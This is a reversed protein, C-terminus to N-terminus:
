GFNYGLGSLHDILISNYKETHQSRYIHILYTHTQTHSANMHINLYTHGHVCMWLDPFINEEIMRYVAELYCWVLQIPINYKLCLQGAFLKKLDTQRWWRISSDSACVATNFVANLVPCEFRAGWAQIDLDKVWQM